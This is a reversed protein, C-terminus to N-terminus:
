PICVQLSDDSEQVIMIGNTNRQQEMTPTESTYLERQNQEGLM